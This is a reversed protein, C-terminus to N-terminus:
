SAKCFFQKKAEEMEAPSVDRVHTAVTWKIGFKDQLSGMRDGWFMDKVPFTEKLGAQTAQKFITDVNDFYVYFTSNSPKGDGMNPSVDALFIKSNGITICAHMIKGPEGEMRSIEKAGFAKTYLAIADSAGNVMLTPIVTNCNEQNNSM